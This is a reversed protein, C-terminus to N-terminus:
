FERIADLTKEIKKQFHNGTKEFRLRFYLSYLFNRVNLMLNLDDPDSVLEQEEGLRFQFDGIWLLIEDDKLLERQIVHFVLFAMGEDECHNYVSDAFLVKVKIIDLLVTLENERSYPHKAISILADAAHSLAHAWGKGDVYGRIDNEHRVYKFLQDIVFSFDKEALFSHRHDAEILLSLVLVSFSRAFVSDTNKEGLHYFLHKDDLCHSILQNLQHSDLLNQIHIMQGFATYILEDRLEGDTSGINEIMKLSLENLNYGTFDYNNERINILEQKLNEM